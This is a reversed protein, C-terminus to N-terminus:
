CDKEAGFTPRTDVSESVSHQFMLGDQLLGRHPEKRYPISPLSLFILKYNDHCNYHTVLCIM